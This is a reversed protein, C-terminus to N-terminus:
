EEKAEEVKAPTDSSTSLDSIEDIIKKARVSGIGPVSMLQEGSLGRIQAVKQIGAAILPNLEHGTLATLNKLNEIPEGLLEPKVILVDERGLPDEEKIVVKQQGISRKRKEEWEEITILNGDADHIEKNEIKKIFATTDVKVFLLAHTLGIWKVLEDFSISYSPSDQLVIVLRGIRLFNYRKNVDQHFTWGTPHSAAIRRLFEEFTKEQRSIILRTERLNIVQHAADIIQQLLKRDGIGLAEVMLREEDSQIEEDLAALREKKLQLSLKQIQFELKKIKETTKIIQAACQEKKKDTAATQLEAEKKALLDRLEQLDSKAQELKEETPQKVGAM